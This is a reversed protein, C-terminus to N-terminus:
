SVKLIFYLVDKPGLDLHLPRLCPQFCSGYLFFNTLQAEDFSLFFSQSLFARHLPHLSLSCVLLFYKCVVYVFFMYLVRLIWCSFLELKLIPLLCSCTNWEIPSVPSLLWMFVNEVDNVVLSICILVVILYGYSSILIVLISFLLSVFATLSTSIGPIVPFTFRDLWEPLYELWKKLIHLYARLYSGAIVGKKFQFHDLHGETPAHCFLSQYVRVM